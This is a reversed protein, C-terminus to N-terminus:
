FARPRMVRKSTCRIFSRALTRPRHNGAVYRVNRPPVIEVPQERAGFAGLRLRRHFGMLIRLAKAPVYQPASRGLDRAPHRDGPLGSSTTKASGGSLTAMPPLTELRRSGSVMVNRGALLGTLTGAGDALELTGGGGRVAGSFTSKAEVVLEDKSSSFRIAGGGRGWDDPLQHDHRARWRCFSDAGM